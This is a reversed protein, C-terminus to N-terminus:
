LETLFFRQNKIGWNGTIQKLQYPYKKEKKKQDRFNIGDFSMKIHDEIDKPELDFWM